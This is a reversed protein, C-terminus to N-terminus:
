QKYNVLMMLNFSQHVTQWSLEGLSGEPKKKGGEGVHRKKQGASSSGRRPESALALDVSALPIQLLLLGSGQRPM